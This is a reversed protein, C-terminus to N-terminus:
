TPRSVTDAIYARLQLDRDMDVMARQLNARCRLLRARDKNALIFFTLKGLPTSANCRKLSVDVVLATQNVASYLSKLFPGGRIKGKEDALILLEQAEKLSKILGVCYKPVVRASRYRSVIGKIGQLVVRAAPTVQIAVDEIGALVEELVADDGDFIDPGVAAGKKPRQFFRWRSRTSDQVANDDDVDQPNYADYDYGSARPQRRKPNVSPNSPKM